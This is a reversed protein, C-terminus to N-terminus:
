EEEKTSKKDEKFDDKKFFPIPFGCVNSPLMSSYNKIDSIYIMGGELITACGTGAELRKIFSDKVPIQIMGNIITVYNKPFGRVMRRVRPKNISCLGNPNGEKTFLSSVVKKGISILYETLEQVAPTDKKSELLIMADVCSLMQYSDVKALKEVLSSLKKFHVGLTERIRNWSIEGGAIVEKVGDKYMFITKDKSWSNSEFKNAYFSTNKASETITIYSKRAYDLCEEDLKRKGNYISEIRSVVPANVLASLVNALTHVDIYSDWSSSEEIYTKGLNRENMSKILTFKNDSPILGSKTRLNAQFMVKASEFTLELIKM